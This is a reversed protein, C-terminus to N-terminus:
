RYEGVLRDIIIGAAARVPLHNYSNKGEIAKLVFDANEIADNHLGWATGFLLLVVRNSEIIEKAMNFSIAEKVMSACTVITVPREGEIEIIKDVAEEISASIELVEIAEKRDVNYRAGFGSKWHNILETVFEQQDTLPTIVFFRKIGYTRSIRSLDHLDLNTVASTIKERNKNYVPYHVLGTYLRM